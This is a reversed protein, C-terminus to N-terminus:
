RACHLRSGRATNFVGPLAGGQARCDPTTTRQGASADRVKATTTTTPQTSEGLAVASTEIMAGTNFDEGELVDKLVVIDQPTGSLTRCDSAVDLLNEWRNLHRAVAGQRGIQSGRQAMCPSRRPHTRHRRAPLQVRGMGRPCTADRPPPSQWRRPTPAATTERRLTTAGPSTRLPRPPRGPRGAPATATPPCAEAPQAARPPQAEGHTSISGRRTRTRNETQPPEVRRLSGSALISWPSWTDYEVYAREEHCVEPYPM